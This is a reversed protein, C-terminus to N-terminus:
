DEKPDDAPVEPAEAPMPGEPEPPRDRKSPEHDPEPRDVPDGPKEPAEM